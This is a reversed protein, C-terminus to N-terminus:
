VGNGVGIGVNKMSQTLVPAANLLAAAQQQQARVEGIAQAQEPTRIVDKAVGYYDAIKRGAKQFDIIDLVAPDVQSMSIASEITKYLGLIAGAEQMHVAPSEYEIAISGEYMLEEPVEDLWGYNRFANIEVLSLGNLWENGIKESMPALLLAQEAKIEEVQTATMNPNQNMSLAQFAQVLFAREITQRVQNQMELSISLNNGYQMPVALPRGQADVGGPVVAGPTGLRSAGALNGITLLAPNSQLQGTRLITKGMENGTLMEYFADLAPSMSYASGVVNRYRPVQYPMMQYGSEYILEKDDLNVHYSAIPMGKYDAKGPERDERPEVAHLLRIKKDPYKEAREATKASIRRGFEKLVQRGSMEYERYVTDIRNQRNVDIYTEACPITRYILGRGADDEALFPSWGFIAMQDLLMDSEASFQSHPAYRSRFILTNMYECFRAAADNDEFVPNSPRLRQYRSNSPVLLSKMSAVFTTKANIGTSDFVNQIIRGRSDKTYIKANVACMEAAKDWLPEWPQREDKLHSLRKSVYEVREEAM